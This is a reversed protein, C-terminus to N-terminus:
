IVCDCKREATVHIIRPLAGSYKLGFRISLREDEDSKKWAALLGAPAERLPPDGARCEHEIVDHLVKAAFQWGDTTTLCHDIELCTVRHIGDIPQEILIRIELDFRHIM